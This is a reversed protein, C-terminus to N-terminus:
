PSKHHVVVRNNHYHSITLSWHHELITYSWCIVRGWNCNLTTTTSLPTPCSKSNAMKNRALLENAYKYQSLYLSYSDRYAEIGLLYNLSGLQKLAFKSHLDYQLQHLLHSSKRTLLIDDVYVLLLASVGKTNHFHFLFPDAKPTTSDENM